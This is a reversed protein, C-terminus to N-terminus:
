QRPCVALPRELCPTFDGAECRDGGCLARVIGTVWAQPDDCFDTEEWTNPDHQDPITDCATTELDAITQEVDEAAQGADEIAGAVTDEVDEILGADPEVAFFCDSRPAEPAGVGLLCSDGPGGTGGPDVTRSTTVGDTRYSITIEGSDTDDGTTVVALCAASCDGGSTEVGVLPVAAGDRCVSIHSIAPVRYDDGAITLNTGPTSGPVTTCTAAHAPAAVLASAALLVIANLSVAITRHLRNM